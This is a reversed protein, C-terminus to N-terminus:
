RNWSMWRGQRRAATWCATTSTSRVDLSGDAGLVGYSLTTTVPSRLYLLSGGQGAVVSIGFTGMNYGGRASSNYGYWWM